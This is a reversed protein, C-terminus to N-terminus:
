EVIGQVSDQASRYLLGGVCAKHASVYIGLDGHRIRGGDRDDNVRGRAIVQHHATVGGGEVDANRWAALDVHTAAVLYRLAPIAHVEVVQRRPLELDGF